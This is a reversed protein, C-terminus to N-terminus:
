VFYQTCFVWAVEFHPGLTFYTSQEVQLSYYNGYYQVTVISVAGGKGGSEVQGKKRVPQRAVAGAERHIPILSWLM